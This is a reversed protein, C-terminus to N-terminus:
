FHYLLKELVFAHCKSNRSSSDTCYCGLEMGRLEGLNNYLDPSNRIHEEYKSLCTEIDYESTSFPNQWKSAELGLKNNQRGIYIHKNTVSAWVTVDRIHKLNVVTIQPQDLEVDDITLVKFAEAYKFNDGTDEVYNLLSEFEDISSFKMYRDDSTCALLYCNRDACVYKILNTARSGEISIKERASDLIKQRRETLDASIYFKSRKRAQYLEDRASWTTFRCIISKHKKGHQDTFTAGYRHASNLELEDIELNLREIEDLVAERIEWNTQGDRLPM